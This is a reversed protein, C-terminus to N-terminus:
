FRGPRPGSACASLVCPCSPAFAHRVPCVPYAVRPTGLRWALGRPPQPSVATRWADLLGFGRPPGYARSLVVYAVRPTSFPRPRWARRRPPASRWARFLRPPYLSWSSGPVGRRLAGYAVHRVLNRPTRWAPVRPPQVSFRPPVALCRMGSFFRWPRRFSQRPPLLRWTVISPAVGHPTAPPAPLLGSRRFM